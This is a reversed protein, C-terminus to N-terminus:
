ALKGRNRELFARYSEPARGTIQEVAPSVAEAYGARKIGELAIFSDIFWDPMGTQRMGAALQAEPLDVYTIPKGLVDSTLQALEASSLAEGGTLVYRQGVHGSPDTLIAASVRAIDASSIYSVKGDGSAGFVSGHNRIGDGGFNILNDQFFTPQLITWAIGSDIVHKEARGHQVALTFSGDADAGLASLRLVFGIGAARAAQVIPKVHAGFEPDAQPGVLFLRDVNHFAASLTAPQELDMQVVEAGRKRLDAAAEPKRTGVRVSQGADLLLRAVQNGVTGTAGTILTTM